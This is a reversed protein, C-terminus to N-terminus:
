PASDQDNPYSNSADPSIQPPLPVPVSAGCDDPRGSFLAKLNLFRREYFQYSACALILTLGIDVSVEVLQAAFWNHTIPVFASAPLCRELPYRLLNHYVYLGYSYTGLFRLAPTEFFRRISSSECPTVCRILISACLIDVMTLGIIQVNQDSALFHGSRLFYAMVLFASLGMGWTSIVPLMELYRSSRMAIAILCGFGIADARCLTNTYPVLGGYRCVLGWRCIPALILLGLCVEALRRRRTCILVLWPWILYFQEEVALSWFHSLRLWDAEWRVSVLNNVYLWLYIQNEKIARLGPSEFSVFHPLVIFVVALVGFFLPFIRLVRRAYFNRFYTKDKPADLLIGTILFGSLVFFLDVGVWGSQFLAWIAQKTRDPNTFENAFHSLMVALVASGRLGDLALVRGHEAAVRRGTVM